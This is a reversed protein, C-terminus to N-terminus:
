PLRRGIIVFIGAEDIILTLDLEVFLVVILTESEGRAVLLLALESGLTFLLEKQTSSISISHLLSQPLSLPSEDGAPWWPLYLM